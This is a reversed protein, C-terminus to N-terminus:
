TAGILIKSFVNNVCEKWGKPASSESLIVNENDIEKVLNSNYSSRVVCPYDVNSLMDIDNYSDGVGVTTYNKNSSSLKLKNLFYLLAKGKNQGSCIHYFRSGKVIDLNLKRLVSQFLTFRRENSRWKILLTFDRKCAFKLNEGTLGSLNKKESMNIDDFIDLDQRFNRSIEARVDSEFTEVKESEYMISYGERQRPSSELIQDKHYIGGGTECIFPFSTNHCDQMKKIERFTKSSNFVVHHNCKVLKNLMEFNDGDSFTDHDLFTGDIDTFIVLSTNRLKFNM